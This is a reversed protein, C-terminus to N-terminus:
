PSVRAEGAPAVAIDDRTTTGVLLWAGVLALAAGFVYPTAEGRDFLWGAL